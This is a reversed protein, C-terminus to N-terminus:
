KTQKEIFLLAICVNLLFGFAVFLVTVVVFCIIGQIAQTRAQIRIVLHIGTANTM